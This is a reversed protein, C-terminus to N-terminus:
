LQWHIQTSKSAITASDWQEETSQDCDTHEIVAESTATEIELPDELNSNRAERDQDSKIEKM